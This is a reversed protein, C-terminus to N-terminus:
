LNTLGPTANAAAATIIIPVNAGPPNKVMPLIGYGNNILSAIWTNFNNLFATGFQTTGTTNGEFAMTDDTGRLWWHRACAANTTSSGLTCVVALSPSNPYVVGSSVSGLGHANIPVVVSSRTSPLQSVRIKQLTVFTNALAMRKAIFAAGAKTAQSFQSINNYWTETWASAVPIGSGGAGAQNFYWVEKTVAMIIIRQTLAIYAAQFCSQFYNVLFLAFLQLLSLASTIM